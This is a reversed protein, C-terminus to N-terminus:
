SNYKDLLCDVLAERVLKGRSTNYPYLRDFNNHHPCSQILHEREILEQVVKHM